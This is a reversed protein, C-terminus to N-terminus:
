IFELGPTSISDGFNERASINCSTSFTHPIPPCFSWNCGVSRVYEVSTIPHFPSTPLRSSVNPNSELHLPRGTLCTPSKLITQDCIHWSRNEQSKYQQQLATKGLPRFYLASLRLIALLNTGRLAGRGYPCLALKSAGTTYRYDAPSVM